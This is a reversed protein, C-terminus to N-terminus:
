FVDCATFFVVFQWLPTTEPCIQGKNNVNGLYRANIFTSACLFVAEDYPPIWLITAIFVDLM